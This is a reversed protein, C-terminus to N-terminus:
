GHSDVLACLRAPDGATWGPPAAVAAWAAALEGGYRHGHGLPTDDAFILDATVQWFTVIPYWRMAGLVDRGRPESLWDPRHVALVPSWWNAPDSAHQLYVVRPTPDGPALLDATGTAFRVTRGQQYTPRIQSSGGDRGDVLQNWLSNASTPGAWVVGDVRHVLDQIGGFVAEGGLSGLSEGFMLLKPRQDPPLASWAASVQNFLERGADEAKKREVVFSLWSPLYSYQIAVLASDGNYLYELSEAARPDVWGTGTTTIVCLVKRQFAGTRQLERVALAAEAHIDPASRRGTYVRIPQKAPKGSFARLDDVSPGGGVFARGQLGLSAWSVASQPGGSRAAVKPQAVHPSMSDNLSTSSEVTHSMLPDYVATNLVGLSLVAVAVGGTARAAARPVWRALLGALARAAARLTRATVLVVAFVAATAVLVRLYGPRAPPREGMLRYLDRQWRSGQYVLVTVSPVAIVALVLWAIRRVGPPPTRKVVKGFLWGLVTGLGYGTAASLGSVLGQVLWNRPLLSPTLSMCVFGVGLVMGPFSFHLRHALTRSWEGSTRRLDIWRDARWM